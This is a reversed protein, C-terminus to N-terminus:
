HKIINQQRSIKINYFIKMHGKVFINQTPTCEVDDQIHFPTDAVKYLPLYVRECGHLPIIWHGHPCPTSPFM